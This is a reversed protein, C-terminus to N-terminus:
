FASYSLTIIIFSQPNQRLSSSVHTIKSHFQRAKHVTPVTCVTEVVGQYPRCESQQDYIDKHATDNQEGKLKGQQYPRGIANKRPVDIATLAFILGKALNESADTAAELKTAVLDSIALGVNVLFTGGASILKTQGLDLALVRHM